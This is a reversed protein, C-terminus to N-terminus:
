IGEIQNATLSCHEEGIPRNKKNSNQGTERSRLVRFSGEVTQGHHSLIRHDESSDSM